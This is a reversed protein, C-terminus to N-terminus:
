FHVEAKTIGWLVSEHQYRENWGDRVAQVRARDEPTDPHLIIIVMSDLRVPAPSARGKWQGYLPAYSFGAPFEPTVVEDLFALWAEESISPERGHLGVAFFLESRLWQTGPEAEM